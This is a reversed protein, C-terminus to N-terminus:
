ATDRDKETDRGRDAWLMGRQKRDMMLHIAKKEYVRAMVMSLVFYKPGCM